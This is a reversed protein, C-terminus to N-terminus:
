NKTWVLAMTKSCLFNLIDIPSRIALTPAAIYVNEGPPLCGPAAVPCQDHNVTAPAALNSRTRHRVFISLGASHHASFSYINLGFASMKFM